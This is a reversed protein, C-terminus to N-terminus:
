PAKAEWSAVCLMNVSVSVKLLLPAITWHKYCLVTNWEMSTGGTTAMDIIFCVSHQHLITSHCRLRTCASSQITFHTRAHHHAGARHSSIPLTASITFVVPSAAHGRELTVCWTCYHQTDRMCALVGFSVSSLSTVAHKLCCCCWLPRPCM